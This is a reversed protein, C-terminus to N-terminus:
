LGARALVSAKFGPANPDLGETLVDAPSRGKETLASLRALHIREDKGSPSLRARRGLGASAIELASEALERARRGAISALLGDKLLAPRAATVDEYSFSQALEEAQDLAKPDYLLGAYLASIACALDTSQSDCARVELTTKIRAEPFLTSLHLKWDRRTARHGEFGDRLFSRFTQGTNAIYHDGRKFLFMGADLAWEAYDRYSPRKKTWLSPILGSRSPDMALWVKGRRSKVGALQGDEFPSNAFMANVLPSLRLAMVLKRLADEESSWDFNAQVTATRRMMDLAGKGRAPLYRKMISYRQKPVWPLDEQRAFPQFGIGLWVLNMERSIARLERLHGRMEACIAHVDPLVAGSLELQAGPELTVRAGGRRLSIVPGGETEREPEWGHRSQLESFIRLVGREGEYQLPAGTVADVGFKEGEAGIRFADPPKEAARFVELLEEDDRIPLDDAPDPPAEAM